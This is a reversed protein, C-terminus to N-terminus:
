QKSRLKLLMDGCIVDGFYGFSVTFAVLWVLLAIGFNDIEWSALCALLLAISFAAVHRVISSLIEGREKQKRHFEMWYASEYHNGKGYKKISHFTKM